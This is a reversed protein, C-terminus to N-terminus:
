KRSNIFRGTSDRLIFIGGRKNLGKLWDVCRDMWTDLYGKGLGMGFGHGGTPYVHMEASVNNDKLAQYFLLSNEVPVAKDDTTHVLFTPPTEKTVHLENSYLKALSSDPNAGILNNRSGEHM